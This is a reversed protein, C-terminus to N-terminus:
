IANTSRDRIECAMAPMSAAIGLVGRWWRSCRAPLSSSAPAANMWMVSCSAVVSTNPDAPVRLYRFGEAPTDRVGFAIAVALAFSLLGAGVFVWRWSGQQVVWALPYAGLAAGCNGLFQLLGVLGLDLASGTLTYMQWGVAVGMIQFGGTLLLRASWFRWFPRHHRLSLAPSSAPSSM